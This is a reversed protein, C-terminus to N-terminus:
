LLDASAISTQNTKQNAFTEPAHRHWPQLRAMTADTKPGPLDENTFSMRSVTSRSAARGDERSEGGCPGSKGALKVCAGGGM